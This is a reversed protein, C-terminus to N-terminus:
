RRYRKLPLIPSLACPRHKHDGANILSKLSLDMVAYFHETEKTRRIKEKASPLSAPDGLCETYSNILSKTRAQIWTRIWCTDKSTM